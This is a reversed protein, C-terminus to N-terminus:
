QSDVALQQVEHLTQQVRLLNVDRKDVRQLPRTIAMTTLKIKMTRSRYKAPMM